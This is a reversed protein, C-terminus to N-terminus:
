VMPECPIGVVAHVIVYVQGSLGSVSGESGTYPYQGPAVTQVTTRGKKYTPLPNSGVYVHVEEKHEDNELIYPSVLNVKWTLTGTASDYVISVSGVKTGKTLDNRGAGAYIDWTYTGYDIPGNTWGWNSFGYNTFPIAYSGGYAYATEWCYVLPMRNGFNKNQINAGSTITVQHTGPAPPYTQSWGAQLVESVTYTGPPLNVFEYYGNINTTTTGILTSDGYLNITWGELGPENTDWVGDGNLDNWKYGSIKGLKFNTFTWTYTGGSTVTGFDHETDSTATWGAPIVEDVKYSGPGLDSWTYCGDSGTTKADFLVNDKYLRVTWGAVPTDDSSFGDGTVDEYKCATIEVNKFNGFNKNQINAGSAVNVIYSGTSPATQTWGTPLEESVRYLGATLGTFEYYGNIDTTTQDVLVFDSGDWKLLNITWDELAPEGLSWVGDGNLDNWKYGSINGPQYNGFNKNTVVRQEETITVQHTGPAPPYTQSWGAKLTEMINFTGLPLESFTYSGTSTTTTQLVIHHGVEDYGDLTIVWGELGPEDPEMDAGDADLDNFKYGSISGSAYTVPISQTETKTGTYVLALGVQLSAGPFSAAGNHPGPVPQQSGSEDPDIPTMVTKWYVTEALHAQFYIILTEGPGLTGFSGANFQYYNQRVGGQYKFFANYVDPTISNYSAPPFRSTFDISSRPGKAYMWMVEADIGVANKGANFYDYFSNVQPVQAAVNQKNTIIFKFGVLDGEPYGALNGSVWSNSVRDWGWLETTWDSTAFTTVATSLTILLVAPVALSVALVLVAVIGKSKLEM